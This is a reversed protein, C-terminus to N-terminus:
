KKTREFLEAMGPPLTKGLTKLVPKSYPQKMDAGCCCRPKFRADASNKTVKIECRCEPNRCCYTQGVLMTFM